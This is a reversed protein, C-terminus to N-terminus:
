HFGPMAKRLTHPQIILAIVMIAHLRRVVQRAVCSAGEPADIESLHQAPVRLQCM